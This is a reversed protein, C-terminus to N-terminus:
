LYYSGATFTKGVGPPGHLLFILGKGKGKIFDDFETDQDGQQEVLSQILKKKEPSFVLNSIADTNFDVDKVNSVNFLCWRKSTLAYGPMLHGCILLDEEPLNLHGNTATEIVKSGALFQHGDASANRVFAESDIM